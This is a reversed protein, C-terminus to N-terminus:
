GWADYRAFQMTYTARGQSLSRLDTSYGFLQRLPVKASIVRLLGRSGVDEIQGHRANVDGLVPGLFDEPVAVEVAMIPELRRAEARGCAKRFAEAAAVRCGIETAGERLEIHELVAELDDLPFGGVPGSSTADRIGALAAEVFAPPVAPAPPSPPPLDARVVVGGGRAAPAVRVRAGGFVVKEKGTQEDVLHREFTADAEARATVTERYVVQPKGVQAEVGYERKLRDIVIELHLEGMGRIITQGTESDEQVRFTPDEDALKALGFDLKDKEALSRPEIAVAIVSEYTEISELLIPSASACLTDGTGTDKLGMAVVINGSGAREIRERRNAHVAFLRAIKETKNLRPNYVDDGAKAVGSYIRMFVNKRGGDMQVKFALASFPAKDDPARTASEGTKPDRGVMPPVDAPSPLYACVADLLPEIGRNKLATGCLVPVVKSAVCVRRLAAVLPGDEITEGALYSEALADDHNAVMEILEDRALTAEDQLDAPIAEYRPEDGEHGTFYIARRHVLDVIGVFRDEEGIPLAVPITNPQLRERIQEIVARFNAGPRDMKNVFAVRPVSFKDAQHWVTESQPQVGAVSCFVVVAGDLVRLSREVEITFDVHGPTDILHLEHNHWFFTTAAATITIGREREQDMWDMETQGEHVEGIKHIKGSYFLFRETVTTKGADIHAVVGINRIQALKTM